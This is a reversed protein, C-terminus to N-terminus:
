AADVLRSFRVGSVLAMAVTRCRKVSPRSKIVLAIDSVFAQFLWDVGIREM